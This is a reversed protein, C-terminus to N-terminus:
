SHQWSKVASRKADVKGLQTLRWVVTCEQHYGAVYDHPTRQLRPEAVHPEIMRNVIKEWV